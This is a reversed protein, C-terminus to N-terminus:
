SVIMLGAAILIISIAARVPMARPAQLFMAAFVLTIFALPCRPMM